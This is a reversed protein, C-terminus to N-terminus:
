AAQSAARQGIAPQRPRSSRHRRWWLAFGTLSLLAPSLGGISWMIKTLLGGFQGFHLTSLLADAQVSPDASHLDNRQTVQGTRADLTVSHSYEGFLPNGPLAGIVVVEPVANAQPGRLGTPRLGPLARRARAYLTDYSVGLAPQPLLAKVVEPQYTEPLFTYRLMWVGSTAMLLNIILSWVGVVRHLGSAATRWNRWNIPQRFLLVPVVHKRYVVLGTSVSLLLMLGLLAGTLEGSKGGWLSYHVGLLWGFFHSRADREGLWRATQPDFYAFTWRSPRREVSVEVAQGAHAPLRRFRLFAPQPYRARAARFIADLRPPAPAASASGGSVPVALLAPNLARDLEEEFVLVVGSLSMVLLLLGTALGLWSHLTFLRRTLASRAM